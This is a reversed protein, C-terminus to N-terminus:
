RIFGLITEGSRIDDGLNVGLQLTYPLELSVSGSMVMGLREGMRAHSVNYFQIPIPCRAACLTYRVQHNGNSQTFTLSENLLQRKPSKVGLFVGHRKSELAMDGDIMARVFHTDFASNEITVELRGEESDRKISTIKGDIPALFTGEGEDNIVREPNRFTFLMFLFFGFTLYSLLSGLDFLIVLFFPIFAYGIYRWGENAIISVNGRVMEMRRKIRNM